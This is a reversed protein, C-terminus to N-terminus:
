YNRSFYAKLYTEYMHWDLEQVIRMHSAVTCHVKNLYKERNTSDIGSSLVGIYEVACIAYQYHIFNFDSMDFLFRVLDSHTTLIHFGSWYYDGFEDTINHVKASYWKCSIKYKETTNKYIPSYYVGDEEEIKYFLKYGIQPQVVNESQFLCM